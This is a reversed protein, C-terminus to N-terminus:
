EDFESNKPAKFELYDRCSVDILKLLEDVSLQGKRYEELILKLEEDLEHSYDNLSDSGNMKVRWNEKNM